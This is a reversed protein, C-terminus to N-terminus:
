FLQPWPTHGARAIIKTFTTRLNSAGSLTRPLILNEGEAAQEYAETLIARLEPTIQEALEKKGRPM